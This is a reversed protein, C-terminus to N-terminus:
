AIPQCCQNEGLTVNRGSIAQYSARSALAKLLPVSFLIVMTAASTMQCKQDDLPNWTDPRNPPSRRPPPPPPTPGHYYNSLTVVAARAGPMIRRPDRRKAAQRHLYRMTGAHGAALWADLEASHANPELTTVGIADFGLAAGRRKLAASREIGTM